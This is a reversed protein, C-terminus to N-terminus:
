PWGYTNRQRVSPPGKYPNTTNKLIRRGSFRAGAASSDMLRGSSSTYLSIPDDGRQTMRRAAQHLQIGRTTGFNRTGRWRGNKMGGRKLHYTSKKKRVKSATKPEHKLKTKTSAGIQRLLRIM